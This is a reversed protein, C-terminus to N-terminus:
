FDLRPYVGGIDRPKHFRGFAPDDGTIVPPNAPDFTPNSVMALVEGTEYNMVMVAGGRGDLARYAEVNLRSDITLAVTRGERAMSYVGTVINYGILQPAFVTLAGTGINGHRDGVAHLTARRTQQSDAFTRAGDTIDALVVGNRDTIMGVTLVGGTYVAANFSATAWRSGSVALRVVYIGLGIVMLAVLLLAALARTKIKKM